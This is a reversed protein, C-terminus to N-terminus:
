KWSRFHVVPHYIHEPLLERIKKRKQEILFYSNSTFNNEEEEFNKQDFGNEEQDSRMELHRKQCQQLQHLHLNASLKKSTSKEQQKNKNSSDYYM